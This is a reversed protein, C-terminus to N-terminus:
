IFLPESIAKSACPLVGLHRLELPDQHLENSITSIKICSLHMTQASRVLPDSIMKSAGSPVGLHCPDHPIENEDM